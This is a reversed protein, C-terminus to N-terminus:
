ERLFMNRVFKKRLCNREKLYQINVTIYPFIVQDKALKEGWINWIKIDLIMDNKKYTLRKDDKMAMAVREPANLPPSMPPSHIERALSFVDM